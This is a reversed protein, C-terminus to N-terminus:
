APRWSPHDRLFVTLEEEAGRVGLALGAEALPEWCPAFGVPFGAEWLDRALAQLAGSPAPKPRCRYVVRTELVAETLAARATAARLFAEVAHRLAPEALARIEGSITRSAAEKDDSESLALAFPGSLDPLIPERVIEAPRSWALTAHVEM